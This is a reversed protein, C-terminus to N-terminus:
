LARALRAVAAPTRVGWWFLDRGDVLVIRAAPVAAAVEARHRARFPYPESPLVVLDPALARVTPLDTEPYRM